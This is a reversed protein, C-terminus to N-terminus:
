DYKNVEDTAPPPTYPAREQVQQAQQAYGPHMHPVYCPHRNACTPIGDRVMLLYAKIAERIIGGRSNNEHEAVECIADHMKEPLIVNFSIRNKMYKGVRSSPM